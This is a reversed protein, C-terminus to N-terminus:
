SLMAAYLRALDAAIIRWSFHEEILRRGEDGYKRGLDRNNLLKNLANGLERANNSPVVIGNIGDKIVHNGTGIVPTACALAELSTMGGSVGDLDPRVLVAARQYWTLLGNQDMAGLYKVRHLGQANVQEIIDLCIEAYERDSRSLNSKPGIIILQSPLAVYRLAELLVRLGKSEVIRGVFLILNDVRMTEDPHFTTTQVGFSQFALSKSRPVGLDSLLKMEHAIFLDALHPFFLKFLRKLRPLKAKNAHSTWIKPKRLFFSFLLFSLDAEGQFHIVDYNKFRKIFRPAPIVYVRVLELPNIGLINALNFAPEKFVKFLGEVETEERWIPNWKQNMNYTLVDTQVGIENLIASLIGIATESGGVIPHYSPTVMLVKM